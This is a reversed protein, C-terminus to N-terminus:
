AAFHLGPDRAKGKPPPQPDLGLHALIKEIVPRELIAAFSRSSEPAATRAGSCISTL